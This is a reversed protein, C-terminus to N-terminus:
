EGFTSRLAAADSSRDAIQRRVARRRLWRWRPLAILEDEACSAALELYRAHARGRDITAQSTIIRTPGAAPQNRIAEAAHELDGRTLEGGADAASLAWLPGHGHGGGAFSGLLGALPELEAEIAKASPHVWGPRADPLCATCLDEFCDGPGFTGLGPGLEHWGCTYAPGPLICANDNTCGCVRCSVVGDVVPM